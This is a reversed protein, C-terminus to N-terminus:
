KDRSKRETGGKPQQRAKAAFEAPTAYNLASHPRHENYDQRWIAILDRAHPLSTFWHENLCEDRFKGNFSEIYANQTPKGAQILKLEVGHRYAWQDLAKGTFEPGQDTRIAKPYGRFQAIRDLVHTVYDGSISH